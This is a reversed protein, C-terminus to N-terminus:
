KIGYEMRFANKYGRNRTLIVNKYGRNRTLIVNKYGRSRTLIVNKYGRNRKLIVNKYERNRTLIVNKYGRNRTLIVNKYRRNRGTYHVGAFHHLRILLDLSAFTNTQLDIAVSLFLLVKSATFLFTYHGCHM